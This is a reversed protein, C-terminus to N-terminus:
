NIIKTMSIKGLPFVIVAYIEWFIFDPFVPVSIILSKFFPM